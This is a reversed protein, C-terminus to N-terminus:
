NMLDKYRQQADEKEITEIEAGTPGGLVWVKTPGVVVEWPQPMVVGEEKDEWEIVVVWEGEEVKELIGTMVEELVEKVEMVVMRVVTAETRDAMDEGEEITVVASDETITGEELDERAWVRVEGEMGVEEETTGRDRTTSAEEVGTTTDVEDATDMGDTVLWV